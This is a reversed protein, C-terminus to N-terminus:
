LVFLSLAAGSSRILLSSRAVTASSQPRKRACLKTQESSLLNFTHRSLDDVKGRYRSYNSIFREVKMKPLRSRLFRESEQLVRSAFQFLHAHLQRSIAPDLRRNFVVIPEACMCGSQCLVVACYDAPGPAPIHGLVEVFDREIGVFLRRDPFKSLLFRQQVPWIFLLSHLM